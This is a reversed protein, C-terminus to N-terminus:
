MADTAEAVMTPLEEPATPSRFDPHVIPEGRTNPARTAIVAAALLFIASV